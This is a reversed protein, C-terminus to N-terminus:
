VARRGVFDLLLTTLERPREETIWHGCSDLLEDRVDDAAGRLSREV